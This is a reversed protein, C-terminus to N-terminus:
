RAASAGSPTVIHTPHARCAICSVGADYGRGRHYTARRTGYRLARGSKAPSDTRCYPLKGCNADAASSAWWCLLLLKLKLHSGARIAPARRCNQRLKRVCTALTDINKGHQCAAWKHLRLLSEVEKAMQAADYAELAVEELSTPLPRSNKKSIAEFDFRCNSIMAAIPEMKRDERLFLWPRM